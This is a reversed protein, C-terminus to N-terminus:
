YRILSHSSYSFLLWDIQHYDSCILICSIYYNFFCLWCIIVLYNSHVLIHCSCLVWHLYLAVLHIKLYKELLIVQLNVVAADTPDCSLALVQLLVVGCPVRDYTAVPTPRVSSVVPSRVLFPYM